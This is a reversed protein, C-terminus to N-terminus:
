ADALKSAIVVQRMATGAPTAEHDHLEAVARRMIVQSVRPGCMENLVSM